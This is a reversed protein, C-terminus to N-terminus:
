LKPRIGFCELKKDVVIEAYRVIGNEKVIENIKEVHTYDLNRYLSLCLLWGGGNYKDFGWCEHCETSGCNHYANYANFYAIDAYRCNKVYKSGGWDRHVEKWEGLWWKAYVSKAKPSFVLETSYGKLIYETVSEESFTNIMSSLDIEITLINDNFLFYKKRDDVEHTVRIEVNLSTKGSVLFVDSRVHPTLQKEIYAEQFKYLKGEKKLDYSDKPANPIYVIKNKAIINKAMLHLASESGYGCDSLKYHAFHHTRNKGKRAILVSGCNPCYCNCELGSPVDAISILIGNQLGYRLYKM